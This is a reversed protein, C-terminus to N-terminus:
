LKIAGARGATAETLLAIFKDIESSHINAIIEVADHYFEDFSVAHKIVLQKV